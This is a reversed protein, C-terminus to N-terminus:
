RRLPRRLAAPEWGAPRRLLVYDARRLSVSYGLGQGHLKVYQANSLSGPPVTILVVDPAVRNHRLWEITSKPLQATEEGSGLWVSNSAVRYPWLLYAGPLQQYVLLRDRPTTQSALDAALQELYAKRQSTTHVGEYPGSDIWATLQSYPVFRAIYQFQYVITIAILATIALCTVGVSLGRSHSAFTSASTDSWAAQFAWCFFVGAVMLAPMMGVAAHPYGEASTWGTVVGAVIAPITTWLLLVTAIRRRGSPLFLFLWPTIFAMIIVFGAAKLLDREGGLFLAVPLVILLSRGLRPWRRYILYLVLAGVLFYPRSWLVRWFGQLVKVLKPWGGVQGLKQAGDVSASLCRRVNSLGYSLVLSAEVALVLAAAGCYAGLILAAQRRSSAKLRGDGRRTTRVIMWLSAAFVPVMVWLTPFAFGALGHALGALGVRILRRREDIDPLLDGKAGVFAQIGVAVGLTLFGAGMTNYSLQTLEFLVFTVYLTALLLAFQWRVLRRLAFFVSAAICLVFVLYLHRTYMMIGNAQGGQAAVFPKILPYTLLTPVQLVGTEDLFPRAGLSFRYPVAVYYSEDVLDVGQWLRWETFGIAGLVVLVVVLTLWSTRQM